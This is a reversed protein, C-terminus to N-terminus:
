AGAIACEPDSPAVTKCRGFVGEGGAQRGGVETEGAM